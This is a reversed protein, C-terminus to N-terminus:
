RKIAAAIQDTAMAFVKKLVQRNQPQLNLVGTRAEWNRITAVSKGTLRALDQQSLQNLKRLKVIHSARIGRSINITDSSSARTKSPLTKSAPTKSAHTKSARTKSVHTKLAQPKSARSKAKKAQRQKRPNSVTREGKRKGQEVITSDLSDNLDPATDIEIGFIASLDGSLESGTSSTDISLEAGILEQYDVGRLVFLLEPSQDLRAGVGYLVAALHKCLDAWDPCDCELQIEMPSPFLGNDRDCVTQMVSNSLKGQLLELASDIGGACQSKLADWTEKPLPDITVEIHYTDSGSVMATITGTDIELHIVSGNRAYTRGRPLRNSYDSFKELHRCWAKGWFTTAIARGEINIPLLVHGKRSESKAVQAAAQRREAVTVYAPWRDSRRAM